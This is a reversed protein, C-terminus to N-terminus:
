GRREPLDGDEDGPERMTIPADSMEERMAKVRKPLNKAIRPKM